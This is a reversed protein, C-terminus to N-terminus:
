KRHLRKRRRPWSRRKRSPCCYSLSFVSSLPSIGMIEVRIVDSVYEPPVIDEHIALIPNQAAENNDMTDRRRRWLRGGVVHRRRRSRTFEEVDEGEEEKANNAIAAVMQEALSTAAELSFSGYGSLAIGTVAAVVLATKGTFNTM